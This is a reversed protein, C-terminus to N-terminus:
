LTTVMIAYLTSFYHDHFNVKNHFVVQMLFGM